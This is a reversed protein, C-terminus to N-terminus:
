NIRVLTYLYTYTSVQDQHSQLPLHTYQSGVKMTDENLYLTFQKEIKYNLNFGVYRCNDLLSFPCEEDYFTTEIRFEGAEKENEWYVLKGKREFEFFYNTTYNSAPIWTSTKNGTAKNERVESAGIWKWKGQLIAYDGELKDKKCATLLPLIVVFLIFRRM